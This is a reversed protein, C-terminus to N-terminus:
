GIQSLDSELVAYKLPQNTVYRIIEEVALSGMLQQENGRSGAIHPTIMVNPLKRLASDEILPEDPDTVDLVVEIQKQPTIETLAEYDVITGRATNIFFSGNRMLLFQERGILHVTEPLKPAHISVVDSWAMLENLEMKIVGLADAEKATLYPDYIAVAVNYSKLLRVVERGVYSAGVLGIHLGNFGRPTDRLTIFTQKDDNKYRESSHRVNKAMFVMTAVTYEAVATANAAAASTIKINRNWFEESVIKKVTGAAYAVMKLSPVTALFEADFKPCGWSALLIDSDQYSQAQTPHWNIVTCHNNLRDRAQENFLTDELGPTMLLTVTPKHSM